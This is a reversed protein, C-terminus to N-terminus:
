DLHPNETRHQFLSQLNSDQILHLNLYLSNELVNVIFVVYIYLDNGQPSSLLLYACLFSNPEETM